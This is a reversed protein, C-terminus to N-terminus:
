KPNRFSMYYTIIPELIFSTTTGPLSGGVLGGEFVWKFSYHSINFNSTNLWGTKSQASIGGAVNNLWKPVFTRTHNVNSRTCRYTSDNMMQQISLPGLADNTDIISHVMGLSSLSIGNGVPAQNNLAKFSYTIKDIKYEEYIAIYDLYQPLDSLEFTEVGFTTTANSVLIRPELELKKVHVLGNQVTTKGRKMAKGRKKVARKKRFLNKLGRYARRFPFM